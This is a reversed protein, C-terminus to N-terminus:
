HSLLTPLYPAATALQIAVTSDDPATVGLSQPPKRGATIDAANVIADIYEAYGSGTAPDVLRELAAVFDAAVLPQGNSWRAERRLKFVYTKGDPSAGWTSAVGPAVAAHKDLTTLGECLDRLISQAEFGRAKQPDLSDPDPGGGRVLIAAHSAAGTSAPGQEHSRSCAALTALATAGLTAVAAASLAARRTSM